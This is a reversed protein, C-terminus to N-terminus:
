SRLRNEVIKDISQQPTRLGRVRLLRVAKSTDVKISSKRDRKALVEHTDVIEIKPSITGNSHRLISKQVIQALELITVPRPYCLNVVHALSNEGKDIEGDLIRKALNEFAIGVDRLDVYLMPRYMSHRYPTMSQRALGREIFLNAATKEPMGEGLVTGLRVVAFIKESFEDYFRVICEQIIKSLAYVRAREEVKDPRFGFTEDITGKLEREGMTHWSGALIMGRIRRNHEVVKCVNETGVVNVRYGLRKDTNITPIQVIAAHIVLDVNSLSKELDEQRTVDCHVYEINDAKGPPPKADVAVVTFFRSL